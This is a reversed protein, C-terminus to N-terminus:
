RGNGTPRAARRIEQILEGESQHKGVFGIAGASFARDRTETDDYLSLVVVAVGHATGRLAATAAIGDVEPMLLDMLVVDPCLAAVLASVRGDGAEGVVELDPEIELRMRLGRRVREQDDVLLVRVRRAGGVGPGEQLGPEERIKATRAM